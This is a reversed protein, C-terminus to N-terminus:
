LGSLPEVNASHTYLAYRVADAMHSYRDHKPRENLLGEKDDWRYNEFMDLVHKCSKDVFVRDHEM